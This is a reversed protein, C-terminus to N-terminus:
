FHILQFSMLLNFRFKIQFFHLNFVTKLNINIGDKSLLLLVIDEFGNEAALHLPSMDFNKFKFEM